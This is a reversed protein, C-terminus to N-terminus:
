IDITEGRRHIGKSFPARLDYLHQFQFAQYCAIGYDAECDATTPPQSMKGVSLVHGIAFPVPRAAVGAAPTGTPAAGPSVAASGAGLAAITTIAAGCVLLLTRSGRMM